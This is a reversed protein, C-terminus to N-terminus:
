EEIWKETLEGYLDCLKESNVFANITDMMEKQAGQDKLESQAVCIAHVSQNIAELPTLFGMDYDSCIRKLESQLREHMTTGTM